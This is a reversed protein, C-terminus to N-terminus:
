DIIIKDDDLDFKYTVGEYIKYFANQYNFIVSVENKEINYYSTTYYSIFSTPLDLKDKINSDSVKNLIDNRFKNFNISYKKVLNGKNDLLVINDKKYDPEVLLILNDTLATMIVFNSYNFKQDKKSIVLEGMKNYFRIDDFNTYRGGVFLFGNNIIFTGHEQMPVVFKENILDFVGSKAGSLVTIFGDNIYTIFKSTSVASDDGKYYNYYGRGNSNYFKQNEAIVVLKKKGINYLLEYSYGKNKTPFIFGFLKNDNYLAVQEKERQFVNEEYVVNKITDYISFDDTDYITVVDKSDDYLLLLEQNNYEFKYGEGNYGEGVISVDSKFKKIDNCKVSFNSNDLKQPNFTYVSDQGAGYDILCNYLTKYTKRYYNYGVALLSGFCFCVVAIIIGKKM